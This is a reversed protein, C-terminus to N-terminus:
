LVEILMNVFLDHMERTPHNIYNSLLVTTDIGEEHMKRWKSYADVVTVNMRQCLAKASEIYLDFTGDNQMAATTKAAEKASDLTEDHVYTNMMNPTMFIVRIGKDQIQTFIYELKTVYNDLNERGRCVDNLGFCVVVTDPNHELVDKSLRAVAGDVSDGSIGSNIVELPEDGYKHTWLKKLKNHYVNEYDRVTDFGGEVDYLEFCGETVSDGLFVIKM